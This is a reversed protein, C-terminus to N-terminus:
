ELAKALVLASVLLAFADSPKLLSIQDPVRYIIWVCLCGWFLRGLKINLGHSVNTKETM